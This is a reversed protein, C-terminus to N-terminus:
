ISSGTGVGPSTEKETSHKAIVHYSFVMCIGLNIKSLTCKALHWLRCDTNVVWIEGCVEVSDLVWGCITMFGNVILREGAGANSNISGKTGLVEGNKNM